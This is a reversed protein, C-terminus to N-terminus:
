MESPYAPHVQGRAGTSARMRAQNRGMLVHRAWRERAAEREQETDGKGYGRQRALEMLEPLTRARGVQQKKARSERLAALKDPTMEELKGDSEQIERGKIDYVFGCMPCAPMIRHAAFCKPCTRISAAKDASGRRMTGALSWGREDDPLGHRACNGVHDLIVAREKGPAPRLVRGVQQLYLGLSATPRLLIAAGVVPIDTGESVIDVTVLWDLGGNGLAGILHHRRADSMTGDLVEARLGHSRANEAVHEAHKISVTFVIAPVGNCVQRYHAVADGTITPRDVQEAAENLAFDGGRRHVRGMDLTSPPAYLTYPSLYGRKMLEAVPPGLVLADFVGGYARGLGQGDLREPTATVGLIRAKPRADMVKRWSGATSHHAEDPVILEVDGMKGAELRRVLTQVSCVQVPEMGAYSGSQVLGHHIGLSELARSSQAVLEQRHAVIWVRNGKRVAGEVVHSFTVTKGSGTPAQYLVARAGKRFAERIAAIDREQYDRLPLMLPTRESRFQNGQGDCSNKDAGLCACPKVRRVMRFSRRLADQLCVVPIGRHRSATDM